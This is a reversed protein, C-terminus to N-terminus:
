SIPVCALLGSATTQSHLSYDASSLSSHYHMVFATKVLVANHGIRPGTSRVLTLYRDNEMVDRAISTNAEDLLINLDKTNTSDVRHQKAAIQELM